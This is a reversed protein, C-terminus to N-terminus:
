RSGFSFSTGTSKREFTSVVPPLEPEAVSLLRPSSVPRRNSPVNSV